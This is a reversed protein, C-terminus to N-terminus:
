VGTCNAPLSTLAWPMWTELTSIGLIEETWTLVELMLFFEITHGKTQWFCIQTSPFDLHILCSFPNLLPCFLHTLRYVTHVLNPPPKCGEMSVIVSPIFAVTLCRGKHKDADLEWGAQCHCTYYSPRLSSLLCLQYCLHERCPNIPLYLLVCDGKILSGIIYYKMWMSDSKENLATVANTTSNKFAKTYNQPNDM